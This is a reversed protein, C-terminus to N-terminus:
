IALQIKFISKQNLVVKELILNIITNCIHSSYQLDIEYAIKGDYEKQLNNIYKRIEDCTLTTTIEKKINYSKAYKNLDNEYLVHDKVAGPSKFEWRQYHPVCFYDCLFHCIVGLEQNFKGLSYRIFIDDITLSSLFKIKHVIMNFSEDFYHKKFKYKSVSDPKLNGWIFHKNSILFNKNIDVNEIFLSALAKHTNMMM